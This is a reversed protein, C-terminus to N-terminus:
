SGALEKLCRSKAAALDPDTVSELAARRAELERTQAALNDVYRVGLFSVGFCHRPDTQAKLFTAPARVVYKSSFEALDELKEGPLTTDIRSLAQQLEELDKADGAVTSGCFSTLLLFALLDKM